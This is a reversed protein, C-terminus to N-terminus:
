GVRVEIPMLHNIMYNRRDADRETPQTKGQKDVARVVLRYTGAAPKEWTYEWRRWCFPKAEDILKATTWSKGGDTSVEVKSVDSEGAWAAGHIRYPVGPPITAGAVPQAISAKVRIGATPTLTPLGDLREWIAYDTTQDYGHFPKDTVVIRTLWKVSAMGYWGGVVARVPFGHTALLPEGNMRYALLVEPKLAKALPLGRAFHLKGEPKPDNKVMGSDAGELVVDVAEKKLVAKELISALTVGTWEATSVAGLEWQVGKAKPELFSRGNGVCELTAPLTRAAMKLVDAYTLELPKEVAGTVRLKWSKEDLKPMAFHNRVYFLKNPTLFSDLSAFPYELNDPDKERPILGLASKEDARLVGPLGGWALSGASLAVTRLFLRRDVGTRLALQSSPHNM